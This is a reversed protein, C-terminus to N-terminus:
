LPSFLALVCSERKCVTCAIRTGSPNLIHSNICDRGRKALGNNWLLLSIVSSLIENIKEGKGRQKRKLSDNGGIWTQSLLCKKYKLIQGVYSMGKPKEKEFLSILRIFIVHKVICKFLSVPKPPQIVTGPTVSTRLYEQRIQQDELSFFLTSCSRFSFPSVILWLAFSTWTITM